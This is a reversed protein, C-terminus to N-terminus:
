SLLTVIGSERQIGKATMWKSHDLDKRKLYAFCPDDIYFPRELLEAQGEIQLGSINKKKEAYCRQLVFLARLVCQTGSEMKSTRCVEADVLWAALVRERARMPISVSVFRSYGLWYDKHM